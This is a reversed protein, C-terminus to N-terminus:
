RKGARTVLRIWARRSPTGSAARACDGPLRLEPEAGAEPPEHRRALVRVQDRGCDRALHRREGPGDRALDLGLPQRRLRDDMGAMLFSFSPMWVQAPDHMAPPPARLPVRTCWWPVPPGTVSTGSRSRPLGSVSCPGATALGRMLAQDVTTKLAAGPRARDEALYRSGLRDPSSREHRVGQFRSM